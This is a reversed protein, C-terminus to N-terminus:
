ASWSSAIRVCRHFMRRHLAIVPSFRLSPNAQTTSSALARRNRYQTQAPVSAASLSGHNDQRYTTQLSGNTAARRARPVHPNLVLSSSRSVVYVPKTIFM